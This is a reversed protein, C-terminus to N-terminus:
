QRWSKVRGKVCVYCKKEFWGNRGAQVKKHEQSVDEFKWSGFKGGNFEGMEDCICRIHRLSKPCSPIGCPREGQGPVIDSPPSPLSIQERIRINSLM